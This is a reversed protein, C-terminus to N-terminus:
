WFSTNPNHAKRFVKLDVECVRRYYSYQSYRKSALHTTIADASQLMSPGDEVIFEEMVDENPFVTPAKTQEAVTVVNEHRREGDGKDTGTQPIKETKEIMKTGKETKKQSEEASVLKGPAIKAHQLSTGFMIDYLRGQSPGFDM